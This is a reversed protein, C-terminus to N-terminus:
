GNCTKIVSSGVVSDLIGTAVIGYDNGWGDRIGERGVRVSDELTGNELLENGRWFRAFRGLEARINPSM